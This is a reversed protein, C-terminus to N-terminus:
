PLGPRLTAPLRGRHMKQSQSQTRGGMPKECYVHKGSEIAAELMRPHEFPPTAIFVADIGPDALLKEFDTFTKPNSVKITAKAKELRDDFKDCLATIAARPDAHVISADYSGRGGSGILGVSIRSNAQSGRVAAPAVIAFASASALLSRRSLNPGSVPPHTESM